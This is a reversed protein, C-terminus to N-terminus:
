NVSMCWRANEDLAGRAYVAAAKANIAEAHPADGLPEEADGCAAGVSTEIAIPPGAANVATPWVAARVAVAVKLSPVVWFAVAEEDQPAELAATAVTLLAPRTVAM